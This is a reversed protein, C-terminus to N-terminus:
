AAEEDDEQAFGILMHACSWFGAYCALSLLSGTPATDYRMDLYLIRMGLCFMGIGMVLWVWKRLWLFWTV